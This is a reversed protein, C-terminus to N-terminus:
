EFISGIKRELGGAQVEVAFAHDLCHIVYEDGILDVTLTGPTMTISNAYAVRSVPRAFIARHRVVVPDVPLSPNFVIGAVHVASHVIDWLLAPIYALLRFSQRLTLVPADASWLLQAVLAGIMIALVLGLAINALKLSGSIALWFLFLPGASKLIVIGRRCGGDTGPFLAPLSRRADV